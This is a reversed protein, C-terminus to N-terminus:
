FQIEMEISPVKKRFMIQRTCKDGDEAGLIVATRESFEPTNCRRTHESEPFKDAQFVM